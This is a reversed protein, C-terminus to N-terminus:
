ELRCSPFFRNKRHSLLHGSPRHLRQVLNRSVHPFTQGHTQAEPGGSEVLSTNTLSSTRRQLRTKIRWLHFYFVPCLRLLSEIWFSESSQSCGRDCSGGQHKCRIQICKHHLVAWHLFQSGMLNSTIILRMKLFGRASSLCEFLEPRRWAAGKWVYQSKCELITIWLMVWIQDETGQSTILM